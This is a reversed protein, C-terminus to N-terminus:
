LVDEVAPPLLMWEIVFQDDSERWGYGHPKTIEPNVELSRKIVATVYSM